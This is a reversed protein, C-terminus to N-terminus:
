CRNQFALRPHSVREDYVPNREAVSSSDLEAHEGVATM